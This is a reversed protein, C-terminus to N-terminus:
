TPGCYAVYKKIFVKGLLSKAGADECVGDIVQKWAWDVQTGVGSLTQCRLGERPSKEAFRRWFASRGDEDIEPLLLLVRSKRGLIARAKEEEMKAPALLLLPVDAMASSSSVADGALVVLDPSVGPQDGLHIEAGCELAMSRMRRGFMTGIVAEDSHFAITKTTKRHNPAVSVVGCRGATRAFTRKVSDRRSELLGAVGLGCGLALTACLAWCLPRLGGRWGRALLWLGALVFACGGPIVWLRWDEMTTSFFGALLFALIAGRLATQIEKGDAQPATYFWFSLAVFVAMAFHVWGQEVLFTLYSNVMTRYGETRGLAQYWQMFSSGSQGSGYGAPNEFAMQLGARWLDFRHTVSADAGLASASREAAGSWVGFGVLPLLLLISFWFKASGLGRWAGSATRFPM